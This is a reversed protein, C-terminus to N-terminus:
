RTNLSEIFHRYDAESDFSKPYSGREASKLVEGYKSFVPAGRKSGVASGVAAGTAAAGAAAQTAQSGAAKVASSIGKTIASMVVSLLTGGINSSRGGGSSRAASSSAASGSPTSASSSNDAYALAPNIGAAALDAMRRQIATNSLREEFDRQKQSEAANFGQAQVAMQLTRKDSRIAESSNYVNPMLFGGATWPDSTDYPSQGALTAGGSGVDVGGILNDPM